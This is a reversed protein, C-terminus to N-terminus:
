PFFVAFADGDDAIAGHGRTHCVLREVVAAVEIM